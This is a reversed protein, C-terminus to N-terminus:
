DSKEILLPELVKEQIRQTRKQGLELGRDTRPLFHKNRGTILLNEESREKKEGENM